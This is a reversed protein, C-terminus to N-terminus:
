VTMSRFNNLFIHSKRVKILISYTVGLLITSVQAYIADALPVLAEHNQYLKFIESLLGCLPVMIREDNKGILGVLENQVKVIENLANPLVKVLETLTM